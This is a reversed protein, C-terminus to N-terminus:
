WIVDRGRHVYAISPWCPIRGVELGGWIFASLCRLLGMRVLAVLGVLCKKHAWDGGTPVGGRVSNYEILVVLTVLWDV